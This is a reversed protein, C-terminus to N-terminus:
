HILDNRAKSGDKTREPMNLLPGLLSECVNKTIQMVDLCHPTDLIPWYALDWFVSRTKWVDLLPKPAKRKKGPAPCEEWNDLLMKIEEGSRKCPPGRPEDEGNFLDGRRRWPDNKPLWRRHGIYVTKSSGLDKKLQLYTTDDMCRVCAFYGYGLSVRAGYLDVCSEYPFLRRRGMYQGRGRGM